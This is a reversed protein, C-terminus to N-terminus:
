ITIQLATSSRGRGCKLTKWGDLRRVRSIPALQPWTRAGNLRTQTATTTASTHDRSYVYVMVLYASLAYTAHSISPFNFTWVYVCAVRCYAVTCCASRSVITYYRRPYEKGACVSLILQCVACARARAITSHVSMTSRMM